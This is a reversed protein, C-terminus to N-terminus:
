LNFLDAHKAATGWPDGLIHFLATNLGTVIGSRQEFVVKFVKLHCSKWLLHQIM